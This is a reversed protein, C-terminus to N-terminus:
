QSTRLQALVHGDPREIALAEAPADEGRHSAPGALARRDLRQELRDPRGARGRASLLLIASMFRRTSASSSNAAATEIKGLAAAPAVRGTSQTPLLQSPVASATSGKVNWFSAWRLMTGSLSSRSASIM